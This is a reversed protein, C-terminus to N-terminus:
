DTDLNDVPQTWSGHRASSPPLRNAAAPDPRGADSTDEDTDDIVSQLPDRGTGDHRHSSSGSASSSSSKSRPPVRDAAASDAAIGVDLRTQTTCPRRLALSSEMSTVNEVELLCHHRGLGDTKPCSRVSVLFDTKTKCVTTKAKIKLDPTTNHFM